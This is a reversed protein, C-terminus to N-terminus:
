AGILDQRRSRRSRSARRRENYNCKQALIRICKTLWETPIINLIDPYAARLPNLVSDVRERCQELNLMTGLIGINELEMTISGCIDSYVIDDVRLGEMIYRVQWNKPYPMKYFSLPNASPTM